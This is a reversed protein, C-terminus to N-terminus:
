KRDMWVGHLNCWARAKVDTADTKFTAEPKDDAELYERLVQDGIILDIFGIYHGRTMPHATSGVTVKYGDETKEIVPVHKEAGEDVTEPVLLVMPVGCHVLSPRGPKAIEVVTGCKECIYLQGREEKPRDEALASSRGTLLAGAAGVSAAAAIFDRRKM